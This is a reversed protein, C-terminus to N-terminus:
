QVNLNRYYMVLIYIKVNYMVQLVLLVYGFDIMGYILKDFFLVLYYLMYLNYDFVQSFNLNIVCCGDCVIFLVVSYLYVVDGLQNYWIFMYCLLVDFWVCYDVDVMLVQGGFGFKNWWVNVYLYQYLLSFNEGMVCLKGCYMDIGCGKVWMNVLLMLLLLDYWYMDFCCVVQYIFVYVVQKEWDILVGVNVVVMLVEMFVFDGYLGILCGYNFGQGDFNLQLLILDVLKCLYGKLELMFNVENGMEFMCEVVEGILLMSYCDFCVQDYYIMYMNLVEDFFGGLLDNCIYNMLMYLLVDCVNMMVVVLDIKLVFLLSSWGFKQCLGVIGYFVVYYNQVINFLVIDILMGVVLCMSIKGSVDFGFMDCFIFWQQLMVFMVDSFVENFMGYVKLNNLVVFYYYEGWLMNVYMYNSGLQVMMVIMIMQYM